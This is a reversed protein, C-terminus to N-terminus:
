RLFLLYTAEFHMNGFPLYVHHGSAAHFLVHRRYLFPIPPGATPLLGPKQILESLNGAVVPLRGDPPQGLGGRFGLAHPRAPGPLVAGRHGFGEIYGPLRRVLQAALAQLRKQGFQQLSQLPM